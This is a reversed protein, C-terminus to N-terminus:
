VSCYTRGLTLGNEIFGYAYAKKLIQETRVIPYQLDFSVPM